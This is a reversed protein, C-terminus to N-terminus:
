TKLKGVSSLNAAAMNNQVTANTYSVNSIIAEDSVVSGTLSNFGADAPGFTMWTEYIGARPVSFHILEIKVNNIGPRMISTVDPYGLYDYPPNQYTLQGYDTSIRFANNAGMRVRYGWSPDYPKPSLYVHGNGAWAVPTTGISTWTNVQVPMANPPWIQDTLKVSQTLDYNRLFYSTITHNSVVNDFTYTSVPAQSIGDVTINQVVYGTDPTINFTANAHRNVVVTGNSMINGNLGANATIYYHSPAFTASITSDHQINTFTYSTVAGQSVGDVLVDDIDYGTEPTINFTQSGGALVRVPSGPTITGAAGASPTITFTDCDTCLTIESPLQSLDVYLGTTGTHDAQNIHSNWNLAIPLNSVDLASIDSFTTSAVEQNPRPEIGGSPANSGWEYVVVTRYSSSSDELSLGSSQGTNTNELDIIWTSVSPIRYVSGQAIDGETFSIAPTSHFCVDGCFWSAGTWNNVITPDTANTLLASHARYDFATVPQLISSGDSPELGNWVMNTNAATPFSGNPIALDPSHPIVWSSYFHRINELPDSEAYEVWAVGKATPLWTEDDAAQDIITLLIEGNVSIYEKNGRPHIVAGDPIGIIHNIPMVKGSPVTIHEVNNDVSYSLEIGDSFFVRTKGDAGYEVFGGKPIRNALFNSPSSSVFTQSIGSKTPMLATTAVTTSDSVYFGMVHDTADYSDNIILPSRALQLEKEAIATGVNNETMTGTGAANVYGM